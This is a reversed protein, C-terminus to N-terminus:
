YAFDLRAQGSADITVNQQKRGLKEHWFGVTYEGPPLGGISYSGDDSTVSYFPHEMVFIYAHMWSHFDCQVEIEREPEDFVRERPETDPPQGFNFAKNRVPFSRVNHTVSDSNAVLLKQGVRVGQVRPRYMCGKQDLVAPEAPLPYDGKPVGRRIFVFVDKVGGDDAVILEEDYVAEGKHLKVCEADKSMNIVRRKPAARKLRVQGTLAPGKKSTNRDQTKEDATKSDNAKSEVARSAPEAATAPTAPDYACGPLVLLCFMVLCAEAAHQVRKHYEM